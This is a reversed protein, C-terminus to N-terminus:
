ICLICLLACSLPDPILDLWIFRYILAWFLDLQWPVPPLFEMYFPCTLRIRGILLVLAFSNCCSIAEDWLFVIKLKFTYCVRLWDILYTDDDNMALIDVFQRSLCDLLAVVCTMCINLYHEGPICEDWKHPLCFIHGNSESGVMHGKGVWLERINLLWYIDSFRTWDVQFHRKSKLKSGKVRKLDLLAVCLIM